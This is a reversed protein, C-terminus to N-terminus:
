LGHGIDTLHQLLMRCMRSLLMRWIRSRIRRSLIRRYCRYALRSMRAAAGRRPQPIEAEGNERNQHHPHHDAENPSKAARAAITPWHAAVAIAPTAAAKQGA